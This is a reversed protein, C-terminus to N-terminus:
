EDDRAAEQPAAVPTAWPPGPATTADSTIRSPAPAACRCAVARPGSLLARCLPSAECVRDEQTQPVPLSKDEGGLHPNPVSQKKM